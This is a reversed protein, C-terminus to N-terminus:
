PEKRRKGTRDAAYRIKLVLVTVVLFFTVLNALIVPLSRISLGYIFWLFIGTATLSIMALSIDNASKCRWTKMVQPLYAITTLAGAVLGLLTETDLRTLM